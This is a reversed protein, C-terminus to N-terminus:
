PVDETAARRLVALSASQLGHGLAEHLAFQAAAQAASRFMWTKGIMITHPSVTIVGTM